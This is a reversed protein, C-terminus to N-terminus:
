PKPGYANPRDTGPRSLVYAQLSWGALGGLGGALITFVLYAVGCGFPNSLCSPDPDSLFLYLGVPLGLAAMAAWPLLLVSAYRASRNMDHLRRVTVATGPLLFALYALVVILWGLLIQTGEPLGSVQEGVSGLIMLLVFAGPVFTVTTWFRFWWYEGPSARGTFNAYNRLCRSLAEIPGM